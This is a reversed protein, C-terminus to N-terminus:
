KRQRKTKLNPTITKHCKPCRGPQYFIGVGTIADGRDNITHNCLLQRVGRVIERLLDRFINNKRQKQM